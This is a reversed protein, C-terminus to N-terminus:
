QGHVRAHAGRRRNRRQGLRRACVPVMGRTNHFHGCFELQPYKATVAGAIESVQTPYAMGTTDCLTIGAVSEQAFRDVWSMLDTRDIDGEMPCGFVCSLSVNVPVDAARARAIVGMLQTFSQERTRRLNTLNHTESVSMVVNFEDVYSELAREAGRINPVLATYLVKPHRRLKQMVIEADRLMPIARPSTFSTVEIRRYGAQSLADILAVKDDTEIFRSEMQFGDRTAVENIAIARQQGAQM